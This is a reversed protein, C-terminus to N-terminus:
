PRSHVKLKEHEVYNNEKAERYNNTQFLINSFLYKTQYMPDM